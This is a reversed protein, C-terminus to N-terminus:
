HKEGLKGQTPLLPLGESPMKKKKHSQRGPLKKFLPSLVIRNSGELWMTSENMPNIMLQYARRFAEITYCQHVHTELKDCKYYMVSIAHSCPIGSLDWKGCSCTQKDLEVHQFVPQLMLKTKRLSRKYGLVYLGMGCGLM